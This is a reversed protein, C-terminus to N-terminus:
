FVLSFFLITISKYEDNSIFQLLPICSTDITVSCFAIVLLDSNNIYKFLSLDVFTDNEEYETDEENNDNM